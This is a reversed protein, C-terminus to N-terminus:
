NGNRWSTGEDISLGSGASTAGTAGGFWSVATGIVSNPKKSKTYFQLGIQASLLPVASDTPSGVTPTRRPISGSCTAEEVEYKFQRIDEDVCM